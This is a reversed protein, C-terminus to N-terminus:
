SRSGFYFGVIAALVHPPGLRGVGLRLEHLAGAPTRPLFPVIRDWVILVLAVAALLSVAARVDEVIRPPRRGQGTWWAALQRLVVGLLFGSVLFLTVAGPNQEITLLRGQRYLVVATIVFGLILLLRVTGRPLYLPPPGPEEVADARGRVAFYHGLIIFLLDKLYEPLEMAPRLVLSGWLTGFVLLAMIARVSGAPWGFAHLRRWDAKALSQSAPDITPTPDPM